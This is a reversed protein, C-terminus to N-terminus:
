ILGAHRCSSLVTPRLRQQWSAGPGDLDAELEIRLGVARWRLTSSVLQNVFLQPVQAPFLACTVVVRSALRILQDADNPLVTTSVQMCPLMYKYVGHDVVTSPALSPQIVVTRAHRCFVGSSVEDADGVRWVFVGDALKAFSEVATGYCCWFSDFPTGWGKPWRRTGSARSTAASSRGSTKVRTAAVRYKDM